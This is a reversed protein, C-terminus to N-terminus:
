AHIYYVQQGVRYGVLNSGSLNDLTRSRDDLLQHLIGHIGSGAVYIDIDLIGAAGTNLNDVIALSHALGIGTQSEFTM